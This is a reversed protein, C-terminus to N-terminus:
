PLALPTTADICSTSPSSTGIHSVVVVLTLLFLSLSFGIEADFRFTEFWEVVDLTEFADVAELHDNFYASRCKLGGGGGACV